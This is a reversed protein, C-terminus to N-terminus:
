SQPTVGRFSIHFSAGEATAALMIQGGHTSLINRLIALGMGTGGTDRRTTFFPDFVHPANGKSIGRGNDQVTLATGNQAATLTVGTAGHQAANNLLHGLIVRMGEPALPLPVAGGNITIDLPHQSRLENTLDNLRSMGDYRLERAQAARRLTALQGELQACAGDIQALLRTDEPSLGAGDELLEAAARIASVPTKLEHTVHDTFSRIRTERDRLAGAMAIVSRATTHLERTGFHAPPPPAAGGKQAKAYAELARIPRLLLRVMLWGLLATLTAIVLGLGMAANRFGVEPGLYRLAILGLFSLALTGALAGGLVFGLSPRWRRSM